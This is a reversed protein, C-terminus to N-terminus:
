ENEPKQFKRQLFHFVEIQVDRPARRIVALLNISRKDPPTFLNSRGQNCASCTVRLNSDDNTGGESLPVIHDVHLRVSKRQDLPDPEEPGAGCTQCTFGNRQLIRARQEGSIGKGVRPIRKLSRLMYEGPKLSVDDNHSIIDMGEENRLERIRRQYDNIGAVERLARTHLVTGLNQEFFSRLKDRGSM